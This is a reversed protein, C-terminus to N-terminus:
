ASDHSSPPASVKPNQPEAAAAKRAKVCLFSPHRMLREYGGPDASKFDHTPRPELLRELAFGSDVLSEGIESLSRRFSPMRVDFGFGHWVCSVAETEFYNATKYYLADFSPHSVSFVLLGESKLVRNFGRFVARWDRLYDMVLPALVLDFHEDPLFGLNGNLDARHFEVANGVRARAQELMKPSGDVAVVRAGHQVLWQAYAGPGCGADLVTMGGVHPLLSLTAPREYYANHPKTDIRAAYAEALQEYADLAIPPDTAM